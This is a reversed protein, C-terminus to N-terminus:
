NTSRPKQETLPGDRGCLAILAVHGHPPAWQAYSDRFWHAWRVVRGIM